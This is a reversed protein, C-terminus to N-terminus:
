HKTTSPAKVTHCCSKATPVPDFGSGGWPHCRGLRKATLLTGAVAGHEKFADIAYQSCTPQFRCNAPLWPSIALQYVRLPIIALMALPKKM